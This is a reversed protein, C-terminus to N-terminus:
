QAINIAVNRGEFKLPSNQPNLNYVTSFEWEPIEM